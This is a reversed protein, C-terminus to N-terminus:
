RKLVTGPLAGTHENDEVVIKGNVIVAKIGVPYQNPDQYTARDAITDSDFLVLDAKKDKAIIGRDKLGLRSAPLSTMKRIAESLSIVREERVYKGLIRPFTGYTRPHPMAMGLIGYPAFAAADSGTMVRPHQLFLRINDESQTMINVFAFCNCEVIIDMMTDLPDKGLEESIQRVTKGQYEPHGVSLGIFVGDWGGTVNEVNLESEGRRMEEKIRERTAGDGLRKLLAENGEDHVWYPLLATLETSGAEYPYQDAAIDMGRELARDILELAQPGTEWFRRGSVKLHSIQVPVGACEGIEIAESLANLLTEGEGRIHSSYIGGRRAVTKSLEILERTQVFCGPPYILGTSIGFVGHDFASEIGRQMRKMEEDTPPRDTRGMMADRLTGHGLLHVINVAVGRKLLVDNYEEFTTWSLDLDIMRALAEADKRADGEMPAVSSGCHGIVETTVGQHTKSQAKGNVVLLPGSHTHMDIFGPALHLGDADITRKARANELGGIDIITDGSIGIDAVYEQKGTGDLALANRILLELM